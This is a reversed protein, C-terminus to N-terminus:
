SKENYMDEEYLSINHIPTHTHKKNEETLKDLNQHPEIFSKYHIDEEYMIPIIYQNIKLQYESKIAKTEM